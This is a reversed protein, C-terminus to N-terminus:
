KGKQTQLGLREMRYKVDHTLQFLKANNLEKIASRLRAIIIPKNHVLNSTHTYDLTEDAEALSESIKNVDVNKVEITNISSMISKIYGLATQQESSLSDFPRGSYIEDILKKIEAVVAAKDVYQQGM